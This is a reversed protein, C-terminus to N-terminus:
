FAESLSRRPTDEKNCRKLNEGRYSGHRQQTRCFVRHWTTLDLVLGVLSAKAQSEEEEVTFAASQGLVGEATKAGVNSRRVEFSRVCALSIGDM